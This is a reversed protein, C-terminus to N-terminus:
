ITFPLIPIRFASCQKSEVMWVLCALIEVYLCLM